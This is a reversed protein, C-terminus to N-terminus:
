AAGGVVQRAILRAVEDEIIRVSKRVVVRSLEGDRLMRDITSTSVALRTAAEKKTLLVDPKTARKSM